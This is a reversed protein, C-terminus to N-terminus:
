LGLSFDVTAPKAADVAVPKIPAKGKPAWVGISYQGPPVNEIRFHGDRDTTAFYPNQLVVIYAEMEPHIRCLQVYACPAKLCKAFDRDKTQGQPWTGPQVERLRALLRQAANFRQEPVERDDRGSDASRASRVENRAPGHQGSRCGRVDWRRASHLGCGRGGSRWRGECHRRDHGGRRVLPPAVDDRRSGGRSAM